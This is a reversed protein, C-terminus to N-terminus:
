IDLIISNTVTGDPYIYCAKFDAHFVVICIKNLYMIADVDYKNSFYKVRKLQETTLEIVNGNTDIVNFDRM